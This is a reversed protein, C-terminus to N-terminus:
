SGGHKHREDAGGAGPRRLAGVDNARGTDDGSRRTASQGGHAGHGGHGFLHLVIVAAVLLAFVWNQALWEM